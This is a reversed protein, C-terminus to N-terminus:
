IRIHGVMGIDDFTGIICEIGPDRRIELPTDMLM